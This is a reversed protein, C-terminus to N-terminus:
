SRPIDGPRAIILRSRITPQEKRIRRAVGPEAIVVDGAKQHLFIQAKDRWYADRDGRYYNLHDDLFNTFVAINPSIRNEGFGQLQWSSLEMVVAEGTKVRGLLPLTAVGPINGGLHVRRGSARIMEYILQTTTTKGRTGTVGVTTIPPALKMFLSEDMEIPIGNKRAEAIYPSDLPVGAAKLILDRNRFDELRHRGLVYQIGRFRKLRLLSSQLEERSKLDTVLLKAGSM